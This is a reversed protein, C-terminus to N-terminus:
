FEAVDGEVLRARHEELFKVVENVKRASQIPREERGKINMVAVLDTDGLDLRERLLALTASLQRVASQRAAPRKKFNVRKIEVLFLKQFNGLVFDCRADQGSDLICNDIAAFLLKHREPNHLTFDASQDLNIALYSRQDAQPCEYCDYARIIPEDTEALCEAIEEGFINLFAQRM